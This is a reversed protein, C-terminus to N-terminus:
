SSKVATEPTDPTELASALLADFCFWFTKCRSIVEIASIKAGSIGAMTTPPRIRPKRLTMSEM